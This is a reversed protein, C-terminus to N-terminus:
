GQQIYVRGRLGNVLNLKIGSYIARVISTDDASRKAPPGRSLVRLCGCCVVRCGRAPGVGRPSRAQPVPTAAATYPSM